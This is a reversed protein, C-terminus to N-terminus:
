CCYGINGLNGLDSHLRVGVFTAIILLVVGWTTQRWEYGESQIVSDVVLAIGAVLGVACLVMTMRYAIDLGFYHRMTGEGLRNDGTRRHCGTCVSVTLVSHLLRWRM